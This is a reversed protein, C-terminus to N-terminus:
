SNRNDAGTNPCHINEYITKLKKAIVNNKDKLQEVAKTKGTEEFVYKLLKTTDFETPTKLECNNISTKSCDIRFKQNLYENPISSPIILVIFNALDDTSSILLPKFLIPSKFRKIENNKKEITAKYAMWEQNSSLGLMDRYLFPKDRYESFSKGKYKNDENDEYKKGKDTSEDKYLQYSDRIKRKDYYQENEMAYFFMLTKFYFPYQIGSRWTKYLFYLIEDLQQYIKEWKKRDESITNSKQYAGGGYGRVAYTIDSQKEKEFPISLQFRYYPQFLTDDVKVENSVPYFSGFGKTQRTGFNHNLFFENKYEDITDILDNHLTFIYISIPNDKMNTLSAMVLKKKENEPKKQNAFFSPYLSNNNDQEMNWVMATSHQCVKMKYDIAMCGNKGNNIVWGMEKAKNLGGIKEIIFRDLKPKVETARLTAGKSAYQSQFHIIPTHQILKIELQHM